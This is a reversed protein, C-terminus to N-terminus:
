YKACFFLVFFFDTFFLPRRLFFMVDDYSKKNLVHAACKNWKDSNVLLWSKLGNMTKQSRTILLNVSSKVPM